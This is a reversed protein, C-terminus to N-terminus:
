GWPLKFKPFERNNARLWLLYCGVLIFVVDSGWAAVLAPMRDGKGFALFLKEMFGMAFYIFICGAIGGLIGRRSYVIGLPAAVFIVVLCQFPVAWRYWFHTRFPALRVEPFDSNNTLYEKLEPVSLDAPDENTSVIRWVTESWGTIRKSGHLWTDDENIINGDKDFNVQKGRSLTWTKTAPDFVARDAFWKTIVNGDADQQSIDVGSLLNQKKNISEVYWTRLDQRNRFLQQDLEDSKSHGKTIEDMLLKRTQDSHPALAYNLALSFGATLLGVIFLPLMVRLVSVGATLMSIIENSRSMRSLSYLLALLLGVPLSIVLIQPFQTLYFEALKTLKVHADIFEHGNGSLDFVLWIALFGLTSYLFPIVFNQLVYRDLLRM